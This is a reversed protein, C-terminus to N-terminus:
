PIARLREERTPGIAEGSGNQPGQQQTLRAIRQGARRNYDQAEVREGEAHNKDSEAATALQQMAIQWSPFSQELLELRAQMAKVTRAATSRWTQVACFAAIGAALASFSALGTLLSEM